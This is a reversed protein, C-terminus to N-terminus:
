RPARTTAAAPWRDLSRSRHQSSCNRPAPRHFQFRSDAGSGSHGAETANREASPPASCGSSCGCACPRPARKLAGVGVDPILAGVELVFERALQHIMVARDGDLIQVHPAEGAPHQRLRNAIGSPGSKDLHERVFCFAGPSHQDLDIRSPGRLCPDAARSYPLGERIAPVIARNASQRTTAIMDTSLYNEFPGSGAKPCWRLPHQRM